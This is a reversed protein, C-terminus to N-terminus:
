IKENILKYLEKVAKSRGPCQRDRIVKLFDSEIAKM